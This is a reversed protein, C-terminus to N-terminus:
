SAGWADPGSIRLIAQQGATATFPLMANQGPAALIITQATGDATVPTTLDSSNWLQVSYTATTGGSPDIWVYYTGADTLTAEGHYYTSGCCVGGDLAASGDPRLIRVGMSPGQVSLSVRMGATASFPLRANQGPTTLPVATATGDAPIPAAVDAPVANLTVDYTGTAGGQPALVLLYANEMSLTNEVYFFAGGCCIGGSLFAAGQPDRLSVDVNPGGIQLSFRQGQVGSVRLIAIKGGVTISLTKHEGYAITTSIEIDSLAYPAPPVLFADVSNIRGRDTQVEIPGLTVAPPTTVTLTTASVSTVQALAGNFRVTNRTPDPDFNTGTITVTTGPGGSTPLFSAITPAGSNATVTFPTGSTATGAPSTVTIPGTIAGSPVTVTLATASAATVTAAQNNAFLVTNQSANAGFGTGQITVTTGVPGGAPSFGGITLQTTGQRAISLLNGVADYAYRATSGLQDTVATLRGLEDYQYTIDSAAAAPRVGATGPLFAGGPLALVMSLIVAIHLPKVLGRVLLGPLRGLAGALRRRRRALTARSMAAARRLATRPAALPSRAAVIRRGHRLREALLYSGIVVTAALLQLALGELTPFVGLWLGAWGPVALADLDHRPLWGVAQLTAATTGVMTVLVAGILVGTAVLLRKHPLKAGALLVFAGVVATVLGGLLLGTAVPRVGADFALSQSFLVTEFGERYISTCGLAALGLWTGTAAGLLRGKRRHFGALHDTWYVRHFFWNTVLLLTAVSLLSVAAELHTGWWSLAVLLRRALFWTGVTAALAAAAGWVLPARHRRQAGLRLSGLLSALILVAELGQRFAIVAAQLIAAAEDGGTGPRGTGPSAGAAAPLLLTAVLLALAGLPGRWRGAGTRDTRRM